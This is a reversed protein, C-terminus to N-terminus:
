DIVGILHRCDGRQLRQTERVGKVVAHKREFRREELPGKYVWTDKLREEEIEM